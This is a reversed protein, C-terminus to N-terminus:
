LTFRLPVPTAAGATLRLGVLTLKPVCATPLAPTACATVSVFVPVAVRVILLTVIV